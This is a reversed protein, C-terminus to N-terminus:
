VECIATVETFGAYIVYRGKCKTKGQKLLTSL